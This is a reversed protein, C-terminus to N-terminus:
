FYKAGIKYVDNSVKEYADRKMKNKRLEKQLMVELEEENVIDIDM